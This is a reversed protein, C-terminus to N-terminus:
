VRRNIIEGCLLSLSAHIGSIEILRVRSFVFKWIIKKKKAGAKIKNKEIHNRWRNKSKEREKRQRKKGRHTAVFSWVASWLQCHTVVTLPLVEPSVFLTEKTDIKHKKTRHPNKNRKWVPLSHYHQLFIECTGLIELFIRRSQILDAIFSFVTTWNLWVWLSEVNMERIEEKGVSFFSFISDLESLNGSKHSSRSSSFCALGSSRSFHSLSSKWVGNWSSALKPFNRENELRM